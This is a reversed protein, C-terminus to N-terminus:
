GAHGSWALDPVLFINRIVMLSFILIGVMYIPVIPVGNAAISNFEYGPLSYAWHLSTDVPLLHTHLWILDNTWDVETKKGSRSKLHKVRGPICEMRCWIGMISYSSWSRSWSIWYITTSEGVGVAYREKRKNFEIRFTSLDQLWPM